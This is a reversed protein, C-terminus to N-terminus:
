LAEFTATPDAAFWTFSSQEYHNTFTIWALNCLINKVDVTTPIYMRIRDHMYEYCVGSIDGELGVSLETEKYTFCILALNEGTDSAGTFPLESSLVVELLIDTNKITSTNIIVKCRGDVKFVKTKCPLSCPKIPILKNNLYFSIDGLPTTIKNPM